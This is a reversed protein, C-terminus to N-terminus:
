DKVAHIRPPVLVAPEVPEVISIVGATQEGYIKVQVRVGAEMDVDGEGPRVMFRERTRTEM